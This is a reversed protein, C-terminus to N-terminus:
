QVARAISRVEGNLWNRRQVQIPGGREPASRNFRLGTASKRGPNAPSVQPKSSPRPPNGKSSSRPPPRTAAKNRRCQIRCKSSRLRHDANRRNNMMAAFHPMLPTQNRLNLSRPRDICCSQSVRDGCITVDGNTCCTNPRATTRFALASQVVSVAFMNKNENAASSPRM